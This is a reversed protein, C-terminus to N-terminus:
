KMQKRVYLLLDCAAEKRGRYYEEKSTGEYKAIWYECKEIYNEFFSIAYDKQTRKKGIKM